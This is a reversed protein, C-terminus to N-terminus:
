SQALSARLEHRVLKDLIAFIRDTVSGREAAPKHGKIWQVTIPRIDAQQFLDRYLDAHALIAGKKTRYNSDVLGDRRRHLLDHLTRCDTVITLPLTADASRIGSLATTLEALTSKHTPIHEFRTKQMIHAALADDSM